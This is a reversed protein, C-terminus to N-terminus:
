DDIGIKYNIMAEYLKQPIVNKYEEAVEKIYREKFQKYVQFAEEPTKYRGLFKNKKDM